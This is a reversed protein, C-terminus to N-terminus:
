VLCVDDDPTVGELGQRGTLSRPRGLARSIRLEKGRGFWHHECVDRASPFPHTEWFAMECGVWTQTHNEGGSM